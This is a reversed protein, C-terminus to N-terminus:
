KVPLAPKGVPVTFYVVRGQVPLEPDIGEDLSAVDEDTAGIPTVTLPGDPSESGLLSLASTGPWSPANKLTVKWGGEAAEDKLLVGAPALMQTLKREGAAKLQADVTPQLEGLPPLKALAAACKERVDAAAQPDAWNFAADVGIEGLIQRADATAAALPQSGQSGIDLLAALWQTKTVPDIPRVKEGEKPQASQVAAAANLIATEWGLEDIKALQEVVMAATDAMAVRGTAAPDVDAPAIAVEKTTGQFDAIYTALFKGDQRVPVATMFYRKGDKTGFVLSAKAAPNDFSATLLGALPKGDQEHAAIARLIPLRQTVVDAGPLASAYKLGEEAAAVRQAAVAPSLKAPYEEDWRSIMINWQQVDALTRADSQLAKQFDASRPDDPNAKIYADLQQRYVEADDVSNAIAQIAAAQAQQAASAAAQQREHQDIETTLAAVLNREDDNRALRSAEELLGRDQLATASELATRFEKVRAAETQQQLEDTLTALQSQLDAIPVENLLDSENDAIDQLYTQAEALKDSDIFDGDPKAAQM